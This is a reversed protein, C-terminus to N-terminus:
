LVAGQLFLLRAFPSAVDGQLFFFCHALYVTTTSDKNTCQKFVLAFVHGRAICGMRAYDLEM